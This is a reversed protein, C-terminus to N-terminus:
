VRRACRRGDARCIRCRCIAFTEANAKKCVGLLRRMEGAFEGWMGAGRPLCGVLLGLFGRGGWLCGVWACIRGRSLDPMATHCVSKEGMVGSFAGKGAIDGRM